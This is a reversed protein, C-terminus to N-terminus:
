YIIGPIVVPTGTHLALPRCMTDDRQGEDFEEITLGSFADPMGGASKGGVRETLKWIGEKRFSTKKILM